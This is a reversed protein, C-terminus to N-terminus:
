KIEGTIKGEIVKMLVLLGVHHSWAMLRVKTKVDFGKKGGYALWFKWSEYPNKFKMGVHPVLCSLVNERFNM